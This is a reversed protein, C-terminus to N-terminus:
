KIYYNYNKIHDNIVQINGSDIGFLFKIEKTNVKCKYGNEIHYLKYTKIHEM